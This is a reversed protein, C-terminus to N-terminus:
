RQDELWYGYRPCMGRRYLIKQEACLRNIEITSSGAM